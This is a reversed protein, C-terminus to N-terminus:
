DYYQFVLRWKVESTYKGSSLYEGGVGMTLYTGGFPGILLAPRPRDWVFDLFKLCYTTQLGKKERLNQSEEGRGMANIARAGTKARGEM